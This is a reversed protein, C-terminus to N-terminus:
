RNVLTEEWTVVLMHDKLLSSLFLFTFLFCLFFSILFSLFFSPSFCAVPQKQENLLRTRSFRRERTCNARRLRSLYIMIRKRFDSCLIIFNEEDM